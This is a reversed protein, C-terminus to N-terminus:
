KKQCLTEKFALVKKIFDTHQQIVQDCLEPTAKVHEACCGCGVTVFSPEKVFNLDDDFTEYDERIDFIQPIDSM